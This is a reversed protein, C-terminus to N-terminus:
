NNEKKIERIEKKLEEMEKQFFEKKEQEQKKKLEQWGSVADVLFYIFVITAIVLVVVEFFGRDKIATCSTLDLFVLAIFLKRM